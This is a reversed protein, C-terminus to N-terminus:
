PQDEMRQVATVEVTGDSVVFGVLADLPVQVRVVMVEPAGQRFAVITPEAPLGLETWQDLAAAAAGENPAADQATLAGARAGAAAASSAGHRILHAWGLDIVGFVFTLLVPLVLAFEVANAGRRSRAM